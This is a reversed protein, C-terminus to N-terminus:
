FGLLTTGGLVMATWVITYTAGLTFISVAVLCIYIWTAAEPGLLRRRTVPGLSYADRIAREMGASMADLSFMDRARNKARLSLASRASPSLMAIAALAEAWAEPSPSRLWGTRTSSSTEASSSDVVSWDALDVSNRPEDDVVSEKPGGSRCALVPLGCAMAEVPVIGFHEGTPTYLLALTNESTLLLSRQATTFNPLFVVQATELSSQPSIDDPIFPAGKGENTVPFLCWSLGLECATRLLANLTDVNDRVRSDYGGAIVLRAQIHSPKSSRGIHQIFLAFAKLALAVNKKAEFRNLSIFTPRDSRLLTVERPEDKSAAVEYAALNIGPYIVRPGGQSGRQGGSLNKGDKDLKISPFHRKFIRSTFLSNVLIIDASATTYEELLDMPLRYLRKLLGANNHLPKPPSDGDEEIAEGTALLKDPFHCYFVVRKSAFLRLMPICTSLQDVVFVDPTGDARLLHWTLHLQRLHALLIHLKGHISRPLFFPPKYLVVRLTGDRTEDFCHTPDHHSTIISVSHGKNQLGLAADVVLREAGGIGLDPHIFAIQLKNIEAM